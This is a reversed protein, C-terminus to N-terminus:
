KHIKTTKAAAKRESLQESTHTNKKKQKQKEHPKKGNPSSNTTQNKIKNRRNRVQAKNCVPYFHKQSTEYYTKQTTKHMRHISELEPNPYFATNKELINLLAGVDTSRAWFIHSRTQNCRTIPTYFSIFKKPPIGPGYRM